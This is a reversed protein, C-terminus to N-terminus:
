CACPFFAAPSDIEAELALVLTKRSTADGSALTTVWQVPIGGLLKKFMTEEEPEKRISLGNALPARRDAAILSGRRM